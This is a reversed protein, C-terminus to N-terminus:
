TTQSFQKQEATEYTKNLVKTTSEPQHFEQNTHEFLQSSQKQLGGQDTDQQSSEIVNKAQSSSKQEATKINKDVERMASEQQRFNSNSQNSTQKRIM